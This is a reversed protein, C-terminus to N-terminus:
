RRSSEAQFTLRRTGPKDLPKVIILHSASSPAAPLLTFTGPPDLSINLADISIWTPIFILSPASVSGNEKWICEFSNSTFDFTYSLLEGGIRQPYPRSLAGFHDLEALDATYDWYADSCRYKEFQGSIHAAAAFTKKHRGYAGWEVDLMPM